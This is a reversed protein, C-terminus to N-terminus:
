VFHVFDGPAVVKAWDPPHELLARDGTILTTGPHAALLAWLHRDGRDPLLSPPDVPERVVANDALTTLVIDIESDDLGHRVRLAPRLLVARYEALLDVSLLFIISGQLMADVIRATPANPDSILIGSVVVNTDVVIPLRM